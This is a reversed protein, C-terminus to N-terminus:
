DIGYNGRRIMKSTLPSSEILRRKRLLDSRHPLRLLARHFVAAGSQRYDFTPALCRSEFYFARAPTGVPLYTPAARTNTANHVSAIRLLEDYTLCNSKKAAFEEEAMKGTDRLKTYKALEDAPSSALRASSQTPAHIGNLQRDIERKVILFDKYQSASFM